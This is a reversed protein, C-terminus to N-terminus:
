GTTNSAKTALNNQQPPTQLRYRGTKAPGDFIIAGEAKLAEIDRKVTRLSCGIANAIAPAKTNTGLRIQEIIQGRRNATGDDDNVTGNVPGNATGHHINVTGRDAHCQLHCQLNKQPAVANENEGATKTEIWDALRYGQGGSRIVDQRGVTVDLEDQMLTTVNTRFDRIAGAVGNQGGRCKVLKALESGEYAIYKGNDRKKRLTDLIRWILNARGSSAVIRIGCLEVTKPFFTMTGGDFQKPATLPLPSRRDQKRGLADLIARDLAGDKFPKNVFDVAGKKMLRVALKPGDSGHDTMVIIPTHRMHSSARIQDLLNIGNQVRSLGSGQRIPIELELLVYDYGNTEIRQRATEQDSAFDHGHELSALIDAVEQAITPDDEIVLAKHNM